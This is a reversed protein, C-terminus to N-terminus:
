FEGFFNSCGGVRVGSGGELLGASISYEEWSLAAVGLEFVVGGILYGRVIVVSKGAFPHLGLEFVVGGVLLGASFCYEEWPAIVGLEFV